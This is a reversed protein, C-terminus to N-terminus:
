VKNRMQLRKAAIVEGARQQKQSPAVWYGERDRDHHDSVWEVGEWYVPMYDAFRERVRKRRVMLWDLPHNEALWLDYFRPPRLRKGRMIVHDHAYTYRWHKELWSLGIGNSMTAFEPELWYIEGTERNFRQYHDPAAAGRVKKTVYRSCYACSEFTVDGFPAYGHGWLAELEASEYLVNGNPGGGSHAKADEPRYGWLIAHYHPRWTQGGYEGCQYFRISGADYRKRLRKLFLTMDRRVLSGDAPLRDDDYTLTAFISQEHMQTEHMMRVAWVRSVDLRCGMCQGCGVTLRVDREGESASLTFGGGVRRWGELPRFCPM